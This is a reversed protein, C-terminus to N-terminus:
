TPPGFRDWLMERQSEEVPRADFAPGDDYDFRGEELEAVALWDPGYDEQPEDRRGDVQWNVQYWLWERRIWFLPFSRMRIVQCTLYAEVQGDRSLEWVADRFPDLRQDQPWPDNFTVGDTDPSSALLCAAVSGALPRWHSVGRAFIAVPTLDRNAPRVLDCCDHSWPEESVADVAM